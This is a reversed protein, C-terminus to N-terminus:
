VKFLDYEDDLSNKSNENSNSSDSKVNDLTPLSEQTLEILEQIDSQLSLLGEKETDDANEIAQQVQLM